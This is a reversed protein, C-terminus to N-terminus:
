VTPLLKYRFPGGFSYGFPNETDDADEVPVYELRDLLTSRIKEDADPHWNSSVDLRRLSKAHEAIYRLDRGWFGLSTGILSLSELMACGEILAELGQSTIALRFPAVEDGDRNSAQCCYKLSKLNPCCSSLLKLDDNLLGEVINGNVHVDLEILRKGMVQILQLVDMKNQDSMTLDAIYESNKLHIDLSTGELVLTELGPCGEVLAVLGPTSIAPVTESSLWRYYKFSTLNPCLQSLLVLYDDTLEESVGETEDRKVSRIELGVLRKGMTRIFRLVDSKNENSLELCAKKLNPFLIPLKRLVASSSFPYFKVQLEELSPCLKSIGAFPLNDKHDRGMDNLWEVKLTKLLSFQPKELVELLKKSTRHHPEPSESRFRLGGNNEEELEADTPPPQEYDITRWRRVSPSHAAKSWANSVLSVSRILDWKGVFNLVQIFLEQPLSISGNCFYVENGEKARAQIGAKTYELAQLMSNTKERNRANETPIQALLVSAMVAPSLNVLKKIGDRAEDSLSSLFDLGEIDDILSPPPGIKLGSSAFDAPLSTACKEAVM